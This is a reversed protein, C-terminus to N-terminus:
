ERAATRTSLNALHGSPSEMLSMARLVAAGSDAEVILRWKGTGDGLAGDTGREGGAELARADLTVSRRAPVTLSVTGASPAGVDDVGRIRVPFNAQSTNLLRLWSVQRSNSAPNFTAVRHAGAWVPASSHLSTLFGDAHRVYALVAYDFDGALALWWHGTHAPGTAGTLGKAENGLELDDANIQAVAGADLALKLPGFAMHSDDHAQIKVTGAADSRNVVRLFGQRGRPDATSLFLPVVVKGDVPELPASTLNALHGSPSEVLGMLTFPADTEARLRWKGVGEGLRGATGAGTGSELAAATHAAAGFPELLALATSGPAEGTDDVGAVRVALPEAGRHALRLLSVQRWNDGPNFTALRASSGQVADHLSTLFGDAHRVYALAEIDVDSDLELRWHGTGSGTSGSLGKGPNGGELDASSFHFAGDAAIPFTVPGRETGADDRARVSVQGAADSHNVVRVFGQRGTPDDGSLLLAVRAPGVPHGPAAPIAHAGLGLVAAGGDIQGRLNAHANGALADGPVGIGDADRDDPRVIYRFALGDGAPGVFDTFVARRTAGGVDLALTPSAFRAMQVGASFRVEVEIEEGALYRGDAGPDSVVQVSTVTPRVPGDGGTGDGQALVQVEVSESCNNARDSEGPVGDVCAGYYYTGVAAPATLRVTAVYNTDPDRPGVAETGELADATTITSNTSRLYRVTTVASQADGQNHVTAVFGFAEGAEPSSEDM